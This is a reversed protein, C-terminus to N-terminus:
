PKGNSIWKEINPAGVMFVLKGSDLVNIKTGGMLGVSYVVYFNKNASLKYIYPTNAYDSFPDFLPGDLLQPRSNILQAQYDKESPFNSHQSAYVTIAAKILRLDGDIRAKVAEKQYQRIAPIFFALTGSLIVLIILLELLTVGKRRSM